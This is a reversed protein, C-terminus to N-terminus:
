RKARLFRTWCVCQFIIFSGGCQKDSFKKVDKFFVPVHYSASLSVYTEAECTAGNQRLNCIFVESHKSDEQLFDIQTGKNIISKETLAVDNRSVEENSKWQKAQLRM